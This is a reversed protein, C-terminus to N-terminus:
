DTESQQHCTCECAVTRLWGIWEGDCQDHLGIECSVSYLDMNGM